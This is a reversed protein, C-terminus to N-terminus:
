RPRADVSGTDGPRVEPPRMQVPNAEVPKAEISKTEIPKNEIPKAEVPKAEVPRFEIPKAELPRSDGIKQALLLNSDNIHWRYGVGFDMPLAQGRRFLESMQPQYHQAFIAIPGSYHGVPQLQWKRRDFYRVPIGSDDQLILASQDLLFNRVTTFGGSHLLYSASKLFSDAPGLKECFALFGSTKVGDNALNTSFYYMTQKPAGEGASFVIKVGRAASRPAESPTKENGDADLNVFSMDHITKGSRALFVYIIPLTGNIPGPHLDSHMKKTIFFSYSMLTRLAPEIGQMSHMLTGHSMSTLSPIDGPPELGAMVYTTANPFFAVAHLADPGSFFYLMTDHSGGLRAKAFAKVRAIHGREEQGFIANFYNAHRQWSPDRILPTLPSDPSPPLGALFRATDDPTATEASSAPAVSLLFLGLLFVALKM